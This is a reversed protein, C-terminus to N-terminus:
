VVATENVITINPELIVFFSTQLTQVLLIRIPCSVIIHAFQSQMVWELHAFFFLNVVNRSFGYQEVQM